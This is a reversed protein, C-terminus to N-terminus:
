RRGRLLALLRKGREADLDTIAPTVDNAAPMSLWGALREMATRRTM